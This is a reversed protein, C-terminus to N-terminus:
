EGSNGAWNIVYEVLSRVPHGTNYGDTRVSVYSLAEDDKAAVVLEGIANRGDARGSHQMAGAIELPYHSELQGVRKGRREAIFRVARDGYKGAGGKAEVVHLLEGDFYVINTVNRGGYAVPSDWPVDDDFRQVLDVVDADSTPRFVKLPQRGTVAELYDAAGLEGIQESLKRRKSGSTKNYRQILTHMEARNSGPPFPVGAKAIAEDGKTRFLHGLVSSTTEGVEEAAEGLGARAAAAGVAETAVGPAKAPPFLTLGLEAGDFAMQLPHSTQLYNRTAAGPDDAFTLVGEHHTLLYDGIGALFFGFWFSGGLLFFIAAVAALVLMQEWLSLGNWWDGLLDFVAGFYGFPGSGDLPDVLDPGIGATILLGVALTAAVIAVGSGLFFLGFTRRAAPEVGGHAASAADERLQRTAEVAGRGRRISEVRSEDGVRAFARLALVDNVSASMGTGIVGAATTLWPARDAAQASPGTLVQRVRQAWSGARLVEDIPGLRRDPNTRVFALRRYSDVSLCLLWLLVAFGIAREGNRTLEWLVGLIRPVGQADAFNSVTLTANFGAHAAISTVFTFLPFIVALASWVVRTAGHRSRGRNWMALGIGVAAAPIMTLVAHGAATGNAGEYLGSTFPNVGGNRSVNTGGLGFLIDLASSQQVRSLLNRAGEEAANFGAGVAFGLLMWDVAALRRMRGPAIVALVILPLFKLTEEFFAAFGASGGASGVDLGLVAAVLYALGVAVFGLPMGLAYLASVSTWKVTRTRSLVYMVGLSLLSFFAVQLPAIMEPLLLWVPVLM